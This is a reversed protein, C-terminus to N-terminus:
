EPRIRERLLDRGRSLRSKVTGVAVKLVAAVEQVSLDELYHLALVSQYRLPLKDLAVRVIEANDCADADPDAPKSGLGFFARTRQKRVWWNIENTAIRYLWVVFPVQSPRYRKLSRLMALFVNAIIDEADHRNKVRRFVYGAIVPEYKRYLAALADSSIKAREILEQDGLTADTLPGTSRASDASTRVTMIATV